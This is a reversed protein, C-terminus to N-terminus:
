VSSLDHKRFIISGILLWLAMSMVAPAIVIFVSAFRGQSAELLAILLHNILALCGICLVQQWLAFFRMRRYLKLIIYCTVVLALAHEGLMTGSLIDQLLGVIWVMTLSPPSKPEIFCWCLILLVMADISFISGPAIPLCSYILAFLFSVSIFIYQTM